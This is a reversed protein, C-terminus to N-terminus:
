KLVPVHSASELPLLGSLRPDPFVDIKRQVAVFGAKTYVSMARPDDICSTEVVIKSVDKRWASALAQSMLWQGLGQGILQPVLGLFAICCCGSTRFDLELLGVEIGKPDVVAYVEVRTDHIVAKLEQENMALRSFWLWHEGVRKFLIRYKNPAPIQWRILRLPSTVIPKPKPRQTMEFRTVVTAVEGTKVQILAM